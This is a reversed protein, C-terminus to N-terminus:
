RLAAVLDRRCRHPLADTTSPWPRTSPSVPPWPRSTSSCGTPTTPPRTPWGQRVPASSPWPARCRSCCTPGTRPAWSRPPCACRGTRRRAPGPGGALTREAAATTTSPSRTTARRRHARSRGPLRPRRRRARRGPAARRHGPRALADSVSRITGDCAVTEPIVNFATGAQIRTVTLVAPDFAPVVRTVMSQLATVIECAVPVPDTADHPMSAHGGRGTVTIRFEDCSALMTGARCAVVGSPLTPRSTSPSPGTSPATPARAAGRRAHGPGRRPGGRRAPVHVRGPRAARARRGVLLRAAGVLMAVHADHGCAHMKGDVGSAFDLGTDEPMELADVEVLTPHAWIADRLATYPLGAIMATQVSAMIEGGDVAFATFGLIRDGNVEVLAKLFGRTESLTRARLVQEMPIKFLRYPIGRAKAEKENLGIRALEPDTFLTYPILRGTTVHNGGALNDRVVRFDDVSVHTFQPSGAVEGIAWVGPATTELRENVKIYGRDTVEIGALELGINETNPRRGAAVLLHTGALTKERGNQEVVVTVSDGSKGSIRRVRANLVTDIGEDKFLAALAETVDDDEKHLLRDNRDIITVKSGFRRMAQSLELGVYGGGIVILHGPIQDLELAEIHTLPQADALGPIPELAARTGTSVIVNTGRLRRITGGPLTVELTKPGVFRGSGLIFEAGTQKFNDLYMDNLGSVMARKRARVAPMDVRFGDAVMGFEKGRRFYSAVRASHLINKSPLCAINPCSGGIYKREIM